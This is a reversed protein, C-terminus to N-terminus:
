RLRKILHGFFFGWVFVALSAFFKVVRFSVTKEYNTKDRMGRTLAPPPFKKTRIDLSAQAKLWTESESLDPDFPKM